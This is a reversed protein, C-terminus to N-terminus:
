KVELEVRLFAVVRDESETSGKRFGQCSFGFAMRGSERTKIIIDDKRSNLSVEAIQGEGVDLQDFAVREVKMAKRLEGPGYTVTEGQPVVVRFADEALVRVRLTDDFKEKLIKYRVSVGAQGINRSDVRVYNDPRMFYEIVDTKKRILKWELDTSPLPVETTTGLSMFLTPLREARVVVPYERHVDRTLLKRKRRKKRRVYVDRWRYTRGARVYRQQKDRRKVGVLFAKGRDVDRAKITVQKHEVRLELGEPGAKAGVFRLPVWRTEGESQTGATIKRSLSLRFSDGAKLVRTKPGEAARLVTPGVIISTLSILFARHINM